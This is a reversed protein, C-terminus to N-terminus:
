RSAGPLRITATAQAAIGEGRGTFGLRETTTAKVSVRDTSLTLLEAIRARIAERHPGIKPEECILTLDVFDIRGGRDAILAAAHRLFRDSSAGKWHPDSPPFHTGIDGAAITGLLADTLAHLAVDADSHGSLGRDHPVLIGGLWLEEGDELRHVDFGTATRTEWALRAEAQAIDDPHTVKDLMPDGQVMAVAVGLRRVMQADDTAEEDRWAVHAALITPLAFAQPTQVRFLDARDVRDAMLGGHGRALTDAVPIVPVAADHHDLAALLRDIVAATLFPRAADHVLVREAGLAQAQALGAAVSQQRTAGGTVRITGPVTRAAVDKQGPGIAVIVQEIMPHALLPEVAHALMPRGALLAYQKPVTGGMRSGTGAAVVIAITRLSTM